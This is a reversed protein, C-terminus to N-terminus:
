AKQPLQSLDAIRKAYLEHIGKLLLVRNRRVRADPVNVYVKEFFEHVVKAFADHYAVSAERYRRESLLREITGAFEGWTRWLEKELPEVLLWAKRPRLVVERADLRALALDLRRASIRAFIAHGHTSTGSRM